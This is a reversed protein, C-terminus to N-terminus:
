IILNERPEPPPGPLGTVTKTVLVTGDPFRVPLGSGGPITEIQRASTAVIAGNSVRRKSPTRRSNCRTWIAAPM